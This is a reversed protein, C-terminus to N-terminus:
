PLPETDGPLLSGCNATPVGALNSTGSILSKSDCFLDLVNGGVLTLAGGPQVEITSLNAVVLGGHAGGTVSSGSVTAHSNNSVLLGQGKSGSILLHGGQDTLTSGDTVFVAGTDSGGLRGPNTIQLKTDGVQIASGGQAEVGWVSTGAPSDIVVDDPAAKPFYTTFSQIDVIGHDAASIGVQMNRITTSQVTVHGGGSAFIGDHFPSGTTSKITSREIHVDSVDLAAIGAFGFDRVTVNAVSVQSAEFVFVGFTAPGDMILNRLRIDNSNQGISVGGLATNTTHIAFGNITVSRSAGILLLSAVGGPPTTGPQQLVAGPAAKLTLGEFGNIKVYETCTGQVLVTVPINKPLKSLVANLSQGANCNVLITPLNQASLLSASLLLGAAVIFRRYARVRQSMNGLM